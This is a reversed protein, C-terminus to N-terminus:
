KMYTSLSYGGKIPIFKSIRPSIAQEPCQYICRMCMICNFGFGPKANSKQKINQQPCNDWCIGCSTCKADAHLELGFVRAAPSEIKGLFNVVRSKFRVQKQTPDGEILRKRLDEIRNESESILRLNLARPSNMIFTLPMPLTEDLVVSYGKRELPRRLDDSVADNLWNGAFGVNILSVAEFLGPPMSRVFRKVTRPANFGHVPYFLVLHKNCKLSDPHTFELPLIGDKNVGLSKALKQALHLANGTPSFYLITYVASIFAAFIFWNLILATYQKGNL